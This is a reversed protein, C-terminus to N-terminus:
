TGGTSPASLTERCTELTRCLEVVSPWDPRDIQFRRCIQRIEEQECATPDHRLRQTLANLSEDMVGRLQQADPCGPALLDLAMACAAAPEASLRRRIAIELAPATVTAGQTRQKWCAQLEGWMAQVTSPPSSALCKELGSAVEKLVTARLDREPRDDAVGLHERLLELLQRSTGAAAADLDEYLKAVYDCGKPTVDDFSRSTKRNLAAMTNERWHRAVFAAWRSPTTSGGQHAATQETADAPDVFDVTQGKVSTRTKPTDDFVLHLQHGRALSFRLGAALSVQQRLPGPIGLILTEATEIWQQPLNLILNSRELLRDLIVLGMSEQISPHLRINLAGNQLRGAPIEVPLLAAPPTLQPVFLGQQVFTRALEFPNYGLDVFRDALFVLNHTYIRQGGRGTHEAGAACSLAVCLRGGPLPYFALAHLRDDSPDSSSDDLPNVLGQPHCLGSHSPSNRTITQKEAASLGKGAAVIRYGEGMPTRISTFIAQDCTITSRCM